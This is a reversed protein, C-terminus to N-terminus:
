KEMDSGNLMTALLEMHSNYVQFYGIIIFSNKIKNLKLKNLYNLYCYTALLEKHVYVYTHSEFFCFNLYQSLRLYVCM